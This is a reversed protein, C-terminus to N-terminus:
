LTQQNGEPRKERHLVLIGESVQVSAPCGWRSHLSYQPWHCPSHWAHGSGSSWWHVPCSSGWSEWYQNSLAGWCLGDLGHWWPNLLLPRHCPGGCLWPPLPRLLVLWNSEDTRQLQPRREWWCKGPIQSFLCQYRVYVHSFLSSNSYTCYGTWFVVCFNLISQIHISMLFCLLWAPHYTYDYYWVWIFLLLWM